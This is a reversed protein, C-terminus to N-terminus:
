GGDRTYGTFRGRECLNERGARCQLCEGCTWALWPVGVRPALPFPPAGAGPGVVPGVIEHGLVLPLKPETLEGDFVHLDTRCVGCARVELLVQGPGPDPVPIEELQLPSHPRQMLIAHM